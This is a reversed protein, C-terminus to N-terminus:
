TTGKAQTPAEAAQWEAEDMQAGVMTIRPQGALYTRLNAAAYDPNREARDRATSSSSEHEADKKGLERLHPKMWKYFGGYSDHLQSEVATADSVPDLELDEAGFGHSAARDLM